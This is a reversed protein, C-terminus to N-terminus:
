RGLRAILVAARKADIALYNLNATENSTHGGTGAIGLGDLAMQVYDCAFSIDAAGANRPPVANVVGFGLDVSVKSYEELLKKNGDTLTMPPYGDDGFDITASTHPYNQQIIDSMIQRSKKLQETSVARLDGRVIVDGSVINNKGFATATNTKEDFSVESGGAIIGPNFTLNEEKSLAEYFSHLIRAAEFIAGSGVAETFIQSSHAPTGKVTLTWESSGRRSVLASNPLGDGDEFGLAIDARLAADKIEKKSLAIPDGNLEEDGTMVIEISLDDLLGADNLAQMALIIIVDGGKMDSAGPGQLISDNLMTGTQFTNDSEFVTDLHGILLFKKGKGKGKHVAILHGARNFADGSSWRTEFGLKKLEEMFLEGVKRVGDFNMTGSNINVANKLLTLADATRSDVSKCIKREQASSQAAIGDPLLLATFLLLPKIHKM